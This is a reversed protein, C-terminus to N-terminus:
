KPRRELKRARKERSAKRRKSRAKILRETEFHVFHERKREERRIRGIKTEERVKKRM